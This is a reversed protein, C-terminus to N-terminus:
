EKGEETDELLEEEEACDECLYKNWAPDENEIEVACDTCIDKGCKDCEVIEMNCLECKM